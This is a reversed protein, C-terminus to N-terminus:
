GVDVGFNKALVKLGEAYGQGVARFKWGSGQRYLEGFVMAIALSADDSINFRMLEEGGDDDCLRIYANQIMGFHQWRRKAEHITVAVAITHVAAPAKDLHVRITEQDGGGAGSREDGTHEVAGCASRLQNYFVFDTDTRVKGNAGLLFASADLDFAAKKDTDRKDWGLGIRVTRLSPRTETLPLNQGKELTITM